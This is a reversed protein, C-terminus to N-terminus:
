GWFPVEKVPIVRSSTNHTPIHGFIRGTPKQCYVLSLSSALMTETNTNWIYEMNWLWKEFV